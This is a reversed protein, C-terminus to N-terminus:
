IREHGEILIVVGEVLGAVSSSESPHSSISSASHRRQGSVRPVSQEGSISQRSTTSSSSTSTSQESDASTLSATQSTGSGVSSLSARRDKGSMKAGVTQTADTAKSAAKSIKPEPDPLLRNGSPQASSYIRDQRTEKESFALTRRMMNAAQSELLRMADKAKEAEENARIKGAHKAVAKALLKRELMAVNGFARLVNGATEGADSVVQGASTGYKHEVVDATVLVTTKLVARSTEIMAEAVIAAAGLTAMGVRGVVKIAELGEPPLIEAIKRNDLKNAVMQLGLSAADRIGHVAMRTSEMAGESARKAADSFAMAVVADRDMMLPYDNVKVLVKVHKGATEIRDSIMPISRAMGQEMLKAGASIMVAAADGTKAVRAVREQERDILRLCMARLEWILTTETHEMFEWQQGRKTSFDLTEDIVTDHIQWAAEAPSLCVVLTKLVALKLERNARGISLYSAVTSIHEYYISEERKSPRSALYAISRLLNSRAVGANHLNHFHELLDIRGNLIILLDDELDEWAQERHLPLVRLQLKSPSRRMIANDSEDENSSSQPLTAIEEEEEEEETSCNCTAGFFVEHNQPSLLLTQRKDAGPDFCNRFM